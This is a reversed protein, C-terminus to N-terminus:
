GGDSQLQDALRQRRHVVARRHAHVRRLELLRRVRAREVLRLLEVAAACEARRLAATRRAVVALLRHHVLVASVEVVTAIAGTEAVLLM